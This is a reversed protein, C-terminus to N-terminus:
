PERAGLLRSTYQIDDSEAVQRGGGWGALLFTKSCQLPGAVLLTSYKSHIGLHRFRAAFCRPTYLQCDKPRAAERHQSKKRQNNTTGKMNTCKNSEWAHLPLSAVSLLQFARYCVVSIALRSLDSYGSRTSSTIPNWTHVVNKLEISM